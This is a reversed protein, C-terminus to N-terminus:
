MPVLSRRDPLKLDHRHRWGVAARRRRPGQPRQLKTLFARVFLTSLTLPGDGCRPEFAVLMSVYLLQMANSNTWRRFELWKRTRLERYVGVEHQQCHTEGTRNPGAKDIALTSM